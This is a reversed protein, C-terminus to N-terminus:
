LYVEAELGLAKIRIKLSEFFAPDIKMLGSAPAKRDIPYLMISRPKIRTLHQLWLEIEEETTNDVWLGDVEGKVLLTQIIVNGNFRCLNDVIDNLHIDYLPRNLKRFTENSGADLKQINYYIKSLVRFIDPKHLMSANSLVAIKADPLYNNRLLIIGEIIEPFDPHFTPEGNGAFTIADISAGEKSLEKFSNEAIQLLEVAKMLKNQQIEERPSWGCECYACDFTCLKKSLPLLNIGLSKGLRRSHIPGFVIDGFLISM